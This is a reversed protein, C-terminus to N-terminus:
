GEKKQVKLEKENVVSLTRFEKLDERLTMSLKRARAGSAQVKQGKTAERVFEAFKEVLKEVLCEYSTEM